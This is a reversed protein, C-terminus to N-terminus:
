ARVVQAAERQQKAELALARAYERWAAKEEPSYAGWVRRVMGTDTIFWGSALRSALRYIQGNDDPDPAINSAQKLQADQYCDALTPENM